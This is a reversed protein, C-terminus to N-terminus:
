VGFGFSRVFSYWGLSMLLGGILFDSTVFVKFSIFFSLTEPMFLRVLSKM